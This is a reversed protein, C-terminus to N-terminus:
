KRTGPYDGLTSSIEPHATKARSENTPPAPAAHNTGPPTPLAPAAHNTGRKLTPVAPNGQFYRIYEDLQQQVDVAATVIMTEGESRVEMLKNERLLASFSEAFAPKLKYTVRTVTSVKDGFNNIVGPLGGLGRLLQIFGEVRDQVDPTTTVVLGDGDCKIELIATKVNDKLFAAVAKAKDPKLKYSARKLTISEMSSEVRDAIPPVPEAPQGGAPPSHGDLYYNLSWNRIREMQAYTGFYVGSFPYGSKDYLTLHLAGRRKITARFKMEAEGRKVQILRSPDLGESGDNETRTLYLGLQAQDHSALRFRFHVTLSDGPELKPSTAQVDIIEISDGKHFLMPGLLTPVPKEERRVENVPPAPPIEKSTAPPATAAPAPATKDEGLTWAPLALLGLAIVGALGVWSLRRSAPGRMIM